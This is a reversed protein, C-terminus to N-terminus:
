GSNPNGKKLKENNRPPQPNQQLKGREATTDQQFDKSDAGTPLSM